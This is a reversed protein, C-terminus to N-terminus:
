SEPRSAVARYKRLVLDAIQAPDSKTTDIELLPFPLKAARHLAATAKLIEPTLRKTREARSLAVADPVNLQVILVPAACRDAIAIMQELSSAHFEPEGANPVYTFTSEVITLWGHEMLIKLEAQLLNYALPIQSWIDESPLCHLTRELIEDVGLFATPQTVLALIEGAVSTKGTHSAGTLILLGAAQTTEETGPQSRRVM